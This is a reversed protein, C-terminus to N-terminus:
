RIAHRDDEMGQVNLNAPGSVFYVLRARGALVHFRDAPGYFAFSFGSLNVM